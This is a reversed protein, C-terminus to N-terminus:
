AGPEIDIGGPCNAEICVSVLPPGLHLYCVEEQFSQKVGILEYDRCSMLLLVVDVTAIREVV